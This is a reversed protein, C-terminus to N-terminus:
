YEITKIHKSNLSNNKNLTVNRRIYLVTTNISITNTKNKNFNYRITKKMKTSIAFDNLGKEYAYGTLQLSNNQAYELMKEYM